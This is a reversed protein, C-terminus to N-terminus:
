TLSRRRPTASTAELFNHEGLAMTLDTLDDGPGSALIKKVIENGEDKGPPEFVLGFGGPTANPEATEKSRYFADVAHKSAKPGFQNDTMFTMIDDVDAADAGHQVLQSRFANVQRETRDKQLEERLQTVAENVPKVAETAVEHPDDPLVARPFLKVHKRALADMDRRGDPDGYLREHLQNVPDQRRFQGYLVTLDEPTLDALRENAM